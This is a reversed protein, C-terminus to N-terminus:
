RRRLRLRLRVVLAVLLGVLGHGPGRGLSVEAGFTLRPGRVLFLRKERREGLVALIELRDGRRHAALRLRRRLRKESLVFLREAELLDHLIVGLGLGLLLLLRRRFLLLRGRLVFGRLFGLRGRRTSRLLVRSVRRSVSRSVRRRRRHRRVLLSDCGAGRRVVRHKLSHERPLHWRGPSRRIGRRHHRHELLRHRRRRRRTARPSGRHLSFGGGGGGGGGGRSRRKEGRGLRAGLAASVVVALRILLLRALSRLLLVPRARLRRRTRRQARRRRRRRRLSGLVALKWGRRELPALAPALISRSDVRNYSRRM